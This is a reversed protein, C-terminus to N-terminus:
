YLRGIYVHVRTVALVAAAVTEGRSSITKADKGLSQTATWARPASASSLGMAAGRTCECAHMHHRTAALAASELLSLSHEPDLNHSVRHSYLM